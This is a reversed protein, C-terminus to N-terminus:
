EKGKRESHIGRARRPTDTSNGTLFATLSVKQKEDPCAKVIKDALLLSRPTPVGVRKFNRYYLQAQSCNGRQQEIQSLELWARPRQENLLVSRRFAHQAADTSGLKLLCIGLNEFAESRGTYNPNKVARELASCAQQYDGQAFLFAGYNNWLRSDTADLRLATRFSDSAMEIDGEREQVLALLGHAQASKQNITLTRKIARRARSYDSLRIYGRAIDLHVRVQEDLSRGLGGATETVCGSLLGVMLWVSVLTRFFLRTSYVRFLKGKDGRARFRMFIGIFDSIMFPM